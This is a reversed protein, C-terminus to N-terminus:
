SCCVNSGLLVLWSKYNLTLFSSRCNGEQLDALRAEKVGYCIAYNSVHGQRLTLLQLHLKQQLVTTTTPYPKAKLM